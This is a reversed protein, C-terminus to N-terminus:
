NLPFPLLSATKGAVQQGDETGPILAEGQDM